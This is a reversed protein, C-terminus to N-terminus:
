SRPLEVYFVTGSANQSTFWVKGKLYKEALLKMSYTGLGRSKSKTSFSRKFIQLQVDKPIVADNKVWFVVGKAKRVVGLEVQAGPDSAELANKLMNGLVRRLLVLDTSLVASESESVINIQRKQGVPHSGYTERVHTLVDLTNVEQLSVCLQQTEAANLANQAQIEEVVFRTQRLALALLDRSEGGIEGQVLELLGQVGGVTNLIDHFFIRELARKRKEQSIDAIHFFIFTIGEVSLPVSQVRLDMADIEGQVTRIVRCEESKRQGALTGLLAKYAGCYKCFQTTGCGDESRSAHICGLIEGPRLGLLQDLSEKGLAKLLTSNGFVLQRKDNLVMVMEPVADMIQRAVANRELAAKERLITEQPDREVSLELVNPVRVEFPDHYDLANAAQAAGLGSM